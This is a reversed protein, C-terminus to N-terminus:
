LWILACAKSSTIPLLLDGQHFSERSEGKLNMGKREKNFKKVRPFHCSERIERVPVNYYMILYSKHFWPLNLAKIKTYHDLGPYSLQYWIPKTGPLDRTWIALALIKWHFYTVSKNSNSLKVWLQLKSQGHMGDWQKNSTRM